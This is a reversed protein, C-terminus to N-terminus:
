DSMGSPEQMAPRSEGRDILAQIQGELVRLAHISGCAHSQKGPHAALAQHSAADVFAERNHRILELVAAFRNDAALQRVFDQPEGPRLQRGLEALAAYRSSM